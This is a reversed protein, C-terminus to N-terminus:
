VVGETDGIRLVYKSASNRGEKLGKLSDQLGGLGGHVVEFPHGVFWGQSLGRSFFRFWLFSFERNGTKFGLKGEESDPDVAKHSNGVMTLSFEIAKPIENAPDKPPLVMTIKSGESKKLIKCLNQYSGKEAVSDLALKVEDIGNQELATKIGQVIAEDGNRYDIITDGKERSILTEVYKEGRGAVAIIPHINSLQALKIAFSGVATSAGYIVLPLPNKTPRWPEPLQLNQYLAIAATMAALPITAAEEFTTNQPLHFTTFAWAIAYEAYSGHETRIEHFAAVRDGPKFETINEGVSHIIGAIDDGVNGSTGFWDGMKYDKPNSGSVVVKILVQDANPAPIPSDKIEVRPGPHVIAEKM